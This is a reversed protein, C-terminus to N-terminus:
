SQLSHNKTDSFREKINKLTTPSVQLGKDIWIINPTNKNDEFSIRKNLLISNITHKLTKNLIRDFLLIAFNNVIQQDLYNVNRFITKTANLRHLATSGNFLSGIFYINKDPDM